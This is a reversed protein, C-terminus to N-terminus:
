ELEDIPTVRPLHKVADSLDLVYIIGNGDENEGQLFGREYDVLLLDCAPIGEVTPVFGWFISTCEGDAPVYEIERCTGIKRGLVTANNTSM